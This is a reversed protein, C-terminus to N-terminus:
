GLLEQLPQVFLAHFVHVHHDAANNRFGVDAWQLREPRRRDKWAARRYVRNHCRNPRQHRSHLVGGGVHSLRSSTLKSRFTMGMFDGHFGWMIRMFSGYVFSEITIHHTIRQELRHNVNVDVYFLKNRDRM